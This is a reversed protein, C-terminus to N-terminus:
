QLVPKGDKGVPTLGEGTWSEPSNDVASSRQRQRQVVQMALMYMRFSGDIMDAVSQRLRFSQDIGTNVFAVTDAVAEPGALILAATRDLWLITLARSWMDTKENEGYAATLYELYEKLTDLVMTPCIDPKHSAHTEGDLKDPDAPQKGVRGFMLAAMTALFTESIGVDGFLSAEADEKEVTPISPRGDRDFREWATDGPALFQSVSQITTYGRPLLKTGLHAVAVNLERDWADPKIDNKTESM